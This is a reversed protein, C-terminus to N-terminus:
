KLGTVTILQSFGVEKAWAELDIEQAPQQPAVYTDPSGAVLGPGDQTANGRLTFIDAKINDGNLSELLRGFREKFEASVGNRVDIVVATRHNRKTPLGM